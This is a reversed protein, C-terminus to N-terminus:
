ELTWFDLDKCISNESGLLAIYFIDKELTSVPICRKKYNILQFLTCVVCFYTLALRFRDKM